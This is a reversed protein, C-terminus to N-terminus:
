SGVESKFRSEAAAIAKDVTSSGSMIATHMDNLINQVKATKASVPNEPKTDHTGFTFKSLDDSPVGALAFYAATVKDSTYAPVIGIGSLAIAADEGGAYALFLKAADVKAKDIAPNIGVGTPDGFTVPKAVTSSDRQPVPAIGWNFKIADGKKVQDLYAAVYWSGMILMAAKQKGFQSQYTLSATSSTNFKVQAGSDQMAVVRDYYPKMYAFSGTLIDAGPTQASAFGQVCSQWRHMYAGYVDGGGLGQSLKGAATAYDDWTWKGDPYAVKAKDFMDKDYFLYWSDQRYPMAYAKGDVQYFSLGSTHEDLKAAVDTVDLLQGGNQYTYFNKLNKLIYLDPATGAALDAIMQTDYDNGAKYEKLEITYYPYKAHFGDALTKFEPTSSLTWAAMTLTVPAPTPTPAATVDPALTPAPTPSAASGTCGALMLAAVVALGVRWNTRLKM